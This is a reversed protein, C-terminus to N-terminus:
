RPPPRRHNSPDRRRGGVVNKITNSNSEISLSEPLDGQYPDLTAPLPGGCAPQLIGCDWRYGDALGTAPSGFQFQCTCRQGAICAPQGVTGADCGPAQARAAAGPVGLALLVALPALRSPPAPM